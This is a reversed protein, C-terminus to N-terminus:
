GGEAMQIEGHATCGEKRFDESEPDVDADCLWYEGDEDVYIKIPRVGPSLIGKGIHLKKAVITRRKVFPDAPLPSRGEEYFEFHVV